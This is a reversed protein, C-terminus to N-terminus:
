PKNPFWDFKRIFDICNQKIFDLFNLILCWPKMNKNENWTKKLQIANEKQMEREKQVWRSIPKWTCNLSFNVLWTICKGQIVYNFLFWDFFFFVAIINTTKVSSGLYALFYKLDSSVTKFRKLKGVKILHLTLTSSIKSLLECM